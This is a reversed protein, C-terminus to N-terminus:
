LHHTDGSTVTVMGAASDVVLAGDGTIGAATGEVVGGPTELRVQRGLTLCRPRYADLVVATGAASARHLWRDLHRLVADVVTFREISAGLLVELTAAREGLEVPPPSSWRINLGIGVVVALRRDPDAGAITTAEALIGALKREALEPALVDNPWKLGVRAPGPGAGGRQDLSEVAEVVALGALLPIVPALTAAPRLLVSMLMANGPEDHWTRTQRGRGATQHDAVLVAGEPEGGAAAALLDANTSGTEPV